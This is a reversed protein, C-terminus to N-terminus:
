LNAKLDDKPIAELYNGIGSMSYKSPSRALLMFLVGSRIKQYGYDVSGITWADQMWELMTPSFTPKGANGTRLDELSRQLVQRLRAPDLDYHMVLFALDSDPNDLLALMVHELTVEYHRANVCQVVGSELAATCPRTLRKIISKADVLMMRAM